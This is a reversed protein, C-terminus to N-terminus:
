VNGEFELKEQRVREKAQNRMAERFDEELIEVTRWVAGCSKCRRLRVMSNIGKKYYGGWVSTERSGCTACIRGDIM